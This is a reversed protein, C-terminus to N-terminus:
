QAVGQGVQELIDQSTACFRVFFGEFILNKYGVSLNM